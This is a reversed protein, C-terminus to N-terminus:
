DFLTTFSLLERTEERGELQEYVQGIYASECWGLTSTCRYKEELGETPRNEDPLCLFRVFM